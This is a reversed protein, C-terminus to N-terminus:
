SSISIPVDAVIIFPLYVFLVVNSPYGYVPEIRMITYMGKFFTRSRSAIRSGFVFQDFCELDLFTEILKYIPCM